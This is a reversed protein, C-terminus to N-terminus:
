PTWGGAAVTLIYCYSTDSIKDSGFFSDSGNFKKYLINRNALLPIIDPMKKNPVSSSREAIVRANQMLFTKWSMLVDVKLSIELQNGPLIKQGEIYYYRGLASIYAYNAAPPLFSGSLIVVPNVVEMENKLKIEATSITTISKTMKRRDSVNNYLVIQM